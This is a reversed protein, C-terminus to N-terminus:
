GHLARGGNWQRVDPSDAVDFCPGDSPVESNDGITESQNCVSSCNLTHFLELAEETSVSSLEVETQSRSQTGISACM